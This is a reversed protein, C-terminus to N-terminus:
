ARCRVHGYRETEHFEEASEPMGGKIPSNHVVWAVSDGVTGWSGHIFTNGCIHTEGLCCDNKAEPGAPCMVMDKQRM